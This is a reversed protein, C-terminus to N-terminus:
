RSHGDTVGLRRHRLGSGQPERYRGEAWSAGRRESDRQADCRQSSSTRTPRPAKFGGLDLDGGPKYMLDLYPQLYGPMDNAQGGRRLRQGARHAGAAHAARHCRRPLRHHRSNTFDDPTAGLALKASARPGGRSAMDKATGALGEDPTCNYTTSKRPFGGAVGQRHGTSGTIEDLQSQRVLEGLDDIFSGLSRERWQVSDERRGPGPKYLKWKTM